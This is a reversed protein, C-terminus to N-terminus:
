RTYRPSLDSSQFSSREAQPITAIRHDSIFKALGDLTDQAVSLLKDAKPHDREVLALVQPPTKAADIKKAAAAFARQDRQLNSEALALLDQLPTDIMEDAWLKKKYTDAGYAFEGKARPLLDKQLWTKYDALAALVAGNAKNFESVLAADKVDKFAQPVADKFLDRNSDIQEIAIEVYIRPASDLNKRAHQLVGPMAKEREILLRLREAPPAFARKIMIYATNTIGSSYSDPDKAWPRIVDLTLIRSELSHLLQERDLQNDISLAAPNVAEVRSRLRRAADLTEAVAERSYDELKADYKHIGLYTAQTPYRRCTDELVEAAIQVFNADGSGAAPGSPKANGGATMSFTISAVLPVCVTPRFTM